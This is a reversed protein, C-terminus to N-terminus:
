DHAGNFCGDRRLERINLLAGTFRQRLQHLEDLRTAQGFVAFDTFVEFGREVETIAVGVRQRM